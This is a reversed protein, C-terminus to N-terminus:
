LKERSEEYRKMNRYSSGLQIVAMIRYSGGLGLKLAEVYLPIAKEEM